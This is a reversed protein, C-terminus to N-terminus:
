EAGGEAKLAEELEAQLQVLRAEVQAVHHLAMDKHWPYLGREILRQTAKLDYTMFRIADQLRDVLTQYRYHTEDPLDAAADALDYSAAVAYREAEYDRAMQPIRGKLETM